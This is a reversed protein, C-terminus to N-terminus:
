RKGGERIFLIAIGASMGTLAIVSFAGNFGFHDILYGILTPALSALALSFTLMVGVGTGAKEGALDIIFAYRVPITFFVFFGMLVLILITPHKVFWLLFLSALIYGGAIVRKRGLRDSIMGGLPQAILGPLLMYTTFLNSKFISDGKAYFYSPMFSSVGRSFFTNISALFAVILITLSFTSWYSKQVPKEEIKMFIWVLLAVFLAPIWIYRFGPIGWNALIVGGLFPGMLFGLSGGIGHLGLVRGRMTSPYSSTLISIGQPHYTSLGLGILVASLLMLHYTPSQSFVTYGLGLIIFGTILISKRIGLKEGLHGSFSQLSASIVFPVSTLLGLQLYNLHFKEKLIPLLSPTLMSYTDNIFHALITLALIGGPATKILLSSDLELKKGVEAVREM